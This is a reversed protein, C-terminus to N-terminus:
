VNLEENDQLNEPTQFKLSVMEKNCRTSQYFLKDQRFRIRFKLYKIRNLNMEELYNILIFYLAKLPLFWLYIKHLRYHPWSWFCLFLMFDLPRMLALSQKKNGNWGDFFENQLSINSFNHLILIMKAITFKPILNSWGFWGWLKCISDPWEKKWCSWPM